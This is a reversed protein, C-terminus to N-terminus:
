KFHGLIKTVGATDMAVTLLVSWTVTQFTDIAVTLVALVLRTGPDSMSHGHYRYTACEMVLPGKGARIFSAAWLAAERVAVVDM